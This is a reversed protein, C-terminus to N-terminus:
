QKKVEVRANCRFDPEISITVNDGEKILSDASIFAKCPLGKENPFWAVACPKGDKSTFRDIKIIKCNFM